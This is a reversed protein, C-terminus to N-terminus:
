MISVILAKRLSPVKFLSLYSVEKQNNKVEKEAQLEDMEQQILAQNQIGRLKELAQFNLKKFFIKFLFKKNGKKAEIPKNKTIFLYKPSEVCFPLGIFHVIAPVLILGLLYPWLKDTGLLLPLGVINTVLNGVCMALANITGTFGRLNLPPIESLYM